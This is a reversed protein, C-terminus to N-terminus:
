MKEGRFEVRRGGAADRVGRRQEREKGGKWEETDERRRREETSWEEGERLM